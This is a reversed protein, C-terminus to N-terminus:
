DPIPNKNDRVVKVNGIKEQLIKGWVEAHEYEVKGLRKFM